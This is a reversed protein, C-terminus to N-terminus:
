PRDATAPMASPINVARKRQSRVATPGSTTPNCASGDIQQSGSASKHNPRDSFAITNTTTIPESSEITM